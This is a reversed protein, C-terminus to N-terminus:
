RASLVSTLTTNSRLISEHNSLTLHLSKRQEMLRAVAMVLLGLPRCGSELYGALGYKTSFVVLVSVFRRCNSASEYESMKGISCCNCSTSHLRNGVLFGFRSPSGDYSCPVCVVAYTNWQRHPRLIKLNACINPQGRICFECRNM